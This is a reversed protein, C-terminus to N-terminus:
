NHSTLQNFNPFLIEFDYRVSEWNFEYLNWLVIFLVVLLIHLSFQLTVMNTLSLQINNGQNETVASLKHEGDYRVNSFDLNLSTSIHYIELYVTNCLIIGTM